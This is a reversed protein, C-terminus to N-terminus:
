HFSDLFCVVVIYACYLVFNWGSNQEIVAAISMYDCVAFWDFAAYCELWDMLGWTCMGM